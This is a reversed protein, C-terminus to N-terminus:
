HDLSHAVSEAEQSTGSIQMGEIENCNGSCHCKWVHVMSEGDDDRYPIPRTITASVRLHSTESFRNAPATKPATSGWGVKIVGKRFTFAHSGYILPNVLSISVSFALFFSRMSSEVNEASVPHSLCWVVAAAYPILFLVFTLSITIMMRYTRVRDRTIHAIDGRRHCLCKEYEQTLVAKLARYKKCIVWLIRGNCFLIISLPAGYVIILCFMDYALEHYPTPFFNHNVCQMFKPFEPHNEVHYIISQPISCVLSIAWAAGLLKKSREHAHVFRLPHVIAFYKDVSICAAVTSSLYPGFTRLYLMTKCAVDGVKWQGSIRWAMELPITVFIMILDPMILHMMMRCVRSKKLQNRDLTVLVLLNDCVAFLVVLSCLINKTTFVENFTLHDPYDFSENDTCNNVKIYSKVNNDDKNWIEMETCSKNM